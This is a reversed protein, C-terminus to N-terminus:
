KERKYRHALEEPKLTGDEMWELIRCALPSPEIEGSKWRKVTRPDVNLIRALALGSIGLGIIARVRDKGSM